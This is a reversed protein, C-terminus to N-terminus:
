ESRTRICGSTSIHRMQMDQDYEQARRTDSNMARLPHLEVSEHIKNQQKTSMSATSERSKEIESRVYDLFFQPPLQETALEGGQARVKTGVWVTPNNDRIIGMLFFCPLHTYVVIHGPVRLVDVNSTRRLYENVSPPACNQPSYIRQMILIRQDFGKLNLDKKLLYQRWTHEAEVLLRRDSESYDSFTDRSHFWHLSRWSLSVCFDLLWPGYTLTQLRDEVIPYFLNEAFKGEHKSLRQECDTCLWREKMGDQIRLDINGRERLHGTASSECLWRFIFAPVIHSRHLIASHGCLHCTSKQKM